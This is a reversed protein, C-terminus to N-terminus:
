QLFCSVIAAVVVLDADVAVVPVAVFSLCTTAMKSYIITTAATPLRFPM